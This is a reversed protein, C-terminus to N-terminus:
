VVPQRIKKPELGAAATKNKEAVYNEIAFGALGAYIHHDGFVPIAAAVAQSNGQRAVTFKQGQPLKEIKVAQYTAGDSKGFTLVPAASIQALERVRLNDHNLVLLNNGGLSAALLRYEDYLEDMDAFGELYRQTIDTIVAIDPRIISLLYKMDGQDSVGLELVLYKPFDAQFLLWAARKIIPLWGRFSNYGSPLNLIALPLGIETNFSRPNSRVSLGRNRLRRNIEDKVFTKNTSGAVAIITPRHVMLVYKTIYKLYYKLLIKLFSKM